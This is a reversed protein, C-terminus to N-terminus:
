LKTYGEPLYRDFYLHCKDGTALAYNVYEEYANYNIVEGGSECYSKDSNLEYGHPVISTKKDYKNTEENFIYIALSEPVKLAYSVNKKDYSFFIIVIISLTFIILTSLILLRKKM